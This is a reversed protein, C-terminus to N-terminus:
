FPGCNGRPEPILENLQMESKKDEVKLIIGVRTHRSRTKGDFAILM